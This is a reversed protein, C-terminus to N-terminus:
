KTNGAGGPAPAPAPTPAAPAPAPMQAPGPQAGGMGGGAQQGTALLDIKWQNEEQVLIFTAPAGDKQGNNQEAQVRVTAREGEVKEELIHLEKLGQQKAKEPDTKRAEAGMKCVQELKPGAMERGNSSIVERLGDCNGGELRQAFDQVVAGPGSGGSGSCGVTVGALLLGIAIRKM